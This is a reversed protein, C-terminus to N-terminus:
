QEKLMKGITGAIEASFLQAGAENLHPGDYMLDLNDTFRPDTSYDLFPINASTVEAKLLDFDKRPCLYTAFRPSVVVFLKIKNKRCVEVFEQFANRIYMDSVIRDCNNLLEPTNSKKGRKPIFGNIDVRDGHARIGLYLIALVSSNYFLTSSWKFYKYGPKVKDIIERVPPDSRYYPLLTTLLDYKREEYVFENENMDLIVAEPTHRQLIMKLIALHYMVTQAPRGANYVVCHLSDSLIRTDYHHLARSSGFVILAAQSKRVAFHARGREGTNIRNYMFGFLKGLSLDLLGVSIFSICCFVILRRLDKNMEFNFIFLSVVM